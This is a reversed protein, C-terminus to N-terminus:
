MMKGEEGKPKALTKLKVWIVVSRKWEEEKELIRLKLTEKFKMWEEHVTNIEAADRLLREQEARLDERKRYRAQRSKRASKRNDVKRMTRKEEGVFETAVEYCIETDGNVLAMISCSGRCRSVVTAYHTHFVTNKQAPAFCGLIPNRVDAVHVALAAFIPVCV